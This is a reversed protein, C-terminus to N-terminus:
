AMDTEPITLVRKHLETPSLLRRDSLLKTLLYQHNCPVHQWTPSIVVLPFCLFPILQEIRVSDQGPKELITALRQYSRKSRYSVFAVSLESEKGTIDRKKLITM